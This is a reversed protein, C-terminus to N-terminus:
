LTTALWTFANFFCSIPSDLDIMMMMLMNSCQQIYAEKVFSVSGGGDVSKRRGDFPPYSCQTMLNALGNPFLLNKFSALESLYLDTVKTRNRIEENWNIDRM